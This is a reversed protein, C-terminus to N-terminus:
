RRCPLDGCSFGLHRHRTLHFKNEPRVKYFEGDPKGGSFVRAEERARRSFPIEHDIDSAMPMTEAISTM